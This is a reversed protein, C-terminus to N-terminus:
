ERVKRGEERGGEKGGEMGGEKGEEMGGEKGEEMRGGDERRGKRGGERDLFLCALSIMEWLNRACLVRRSQGM